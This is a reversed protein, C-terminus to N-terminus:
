NNITGQENGVVYAEIAEGYGKVTVDRKEIFTFKDKVREWVDATVLIGGVPANSEMRQALNVAAGIVTYEIRTKNGLNGVIVKGTNIGVRVKLDIDVIPKWKEALVRVKKQMAIAAKICQESHNPLDFPDGFFSLIGDGMFKDVTGGHAFLIEAMSELYDSLFNHVEEPSKDSSWKTFGSIDSFLITLEKYAPALDTKGERMIREALAHPFFRSLANRLLLQEKYKIFLRFLFEGAWLLFFLSVPMTYWPEVATFHWRLFTIGSFVFFGTFCCLHFFVDKRILCCLFVIFFVFTLVVVKYFVSVRSIFAGRDLGDLIAGIVESHIGSLPYLREFSTPGFDKQSTSIEAIVAIRGNLANFVSDFIDDDYNAKVVATLPIRKKDGAWTETFPVHTCGKEDIPIKIVDKESLPLCLFKGATLEIDEIPIGLFLVAAALGLSPIYGDEWEYLLQVRRYVGDYDPEMNVHAIQAAAKMLAPFPLLFTGAQPVKGKEKVKIRWLHRRLLEKQTETLPKYPASIINKDVALSAIVTNGAMEVVGAFEADASKEQSFLFDMVASSNVQALVDVADAFAMRTDINVGLTEISADNLDVSATFPSKNKQGSLVRYNMCVNYFATDFHKVFGSAYLLGTIIVATVAVAAFHAQRKIASQLLGSM